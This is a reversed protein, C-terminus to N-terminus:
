QRTLYYLASVNFTVSTVAANSVITVATGAVQSKIPQSPFIQARDVAGAVATLAGYLKLGNLNGTTHTLASAAPAATAVSAVEVWLINVFYGAPPTITLTQQATGSTTGYLVAARPAADTEQVLTAGPVSVSQAEAVPAALALALLLLLKKM